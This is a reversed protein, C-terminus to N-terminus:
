AVAGIERRPLATFPEGAVLESETGDPGVPVDGLLTVRYLTRREGCIGADGPSLHATSRNDWFAVDGVEWRWRVTFEPRTIQEFLLGLLARSQAPTCGIVRNTSAPNVFLARNGTEPHVRVVPHVAVLPHETNLRLVDQDVEDHQLMQCGAFFCHEARLSDVLGRLTPSLAEYAAELDTWQTDGGFDTVRAARLISAAPPNLAPTLDTHWGATYDWWRRRYREEFDEGYRPDSEKSDVVLIEPFGNPASGNHPAPRRTLEGFRWGLRVQDAHGLRQGRFFVVKYRMVADWLQTRVSPPLAGSLDVGTICAGIHGALPDISLTSGTGSDVM